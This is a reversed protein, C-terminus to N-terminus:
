KGHLLLCHSLPEYLSKALKSSSQKEKYNVNHSVLHGTRGKFPPLWSRQPKHSQRSEPSAVNTVAL